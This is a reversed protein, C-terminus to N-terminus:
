RRAQRDLSELVRGALERVGEDPDSDRIFKVSGISGPDGIKDLSRLAEKRVWPSSDQLAVRLMEFDAQEGLGRAAALRIRIDPDHLLAALERAAAVNRDRSLQEVQELSVSQYQSEPSDGRERGGPGIVRLERIVAQTTATDSRGYITVYSYGDLLTKIVEDAPRNDASLSVRGDIDGAMHLEFSLAESLRNLVEVLPANRAEIDITEGTVEVHLRPMPGADAGAGFAPAATILLTALCFAAVGEKLRSTFPTKTSETRTAQHM